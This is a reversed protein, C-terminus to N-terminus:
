GQYRRWTDRLVLSAMGLALVLWLSGFVEILMM